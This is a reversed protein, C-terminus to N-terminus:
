RLRNMGGASSIHAGIYMAKKLSSVATREALVMDGSAKAKGPKAKKTVKQDEEGCSDCDQEHLSKRKAAGNAKQVVPKATSVAKASSGNATVKGPTKEVAVNQAKRPSQRPMTCAALALLLDVNPNVPEM